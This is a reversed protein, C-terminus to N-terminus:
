KYRCVYQTNCLASPWPQPKMASDFHATMIETWDIAIIRWPRQMTASFRPPATQRTFIYRILGYRTVNVSTSFHDNMWM